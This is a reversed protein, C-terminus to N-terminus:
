TQIAFADNVATELSILGSWVTMAADPLVRLEIIRLVYWRTGVPEFM